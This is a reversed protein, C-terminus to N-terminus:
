KKWLIAHGPCETMIKQLNPLLSEDLDVNYAEAVAEDRAAARSRRDSSRRDREQRGEARECQERAKDFEGHSRDRRGGSL